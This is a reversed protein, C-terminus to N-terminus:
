QIGYIAYIYIIDSIIADDFNFAQLMPGIELTLETGLVVRCTNQYETNKVWFNHPYCNM